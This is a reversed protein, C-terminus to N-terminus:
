CCGLCLALWSDLNLFPYIIGLPHFEIPKVSARHSTTKSGKNMGPAEYGLGWSQLFGGTYGSLHHQCWVVQSGIKLALSRTCEEAEEVKLIQKPEKAFYLLCHRSALNTPFSSYSPYKRASFLSSLLLIAKGARSGPKWEESSFFLAFWWCSQHPPETPLLKSHLFASRLESGM